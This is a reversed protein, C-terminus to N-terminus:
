LYLTLGLLTLKWDNEDKLQRVTVKSVKSKIYTTVQYVNLFCEYVPRRMGTKYRSMSAHKDANNELKHLVGLVVTSEVLIYMKDKTHLKRTIIVIANAPINAKTTNQNESTTM